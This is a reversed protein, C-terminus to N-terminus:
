FVSLLHEVLQGGLHLAIPRSSRTFLGLVCASLGVAM